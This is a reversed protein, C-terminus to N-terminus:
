QRSEMQLTGMMFTQLMALANVPQDMPVMHGANYVRLFKLNKYEKLQGAPQGNVLWEKYSAANFEAQGSWQVANTWAEGGRWNCVFDKDGSYVLVQFDSLEVLATVKAALNTLWDGLLATHVSQVCDYWQRGPVGLKTQISPQNLFKGGLSMDYCLPPFDCKKRIDYVNFAPQLPNGLIYAMNMQCYELAEMWTNSTSTNIM